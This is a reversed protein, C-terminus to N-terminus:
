LTSQSLRSSTLVKRLEAIQLPSTGVFLLIFDGVPLGLPSISQLGISAAV